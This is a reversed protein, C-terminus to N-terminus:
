LSGIWEAGIKGVMKGLDGGGKGGIVGGVFAGFATGGGVEAATGIAGGVAAGAYSGAWSGVGTLGGVTIARGWHQLDNLSPDDADAEWQAWGETVGALIPGGWKLWPELANMWGTPAVFPGAYLTRPPLDSTPWRLFKSVWSVTRLGFRLLWVAVGIAGLTPPMWFGFTVGVEAVPGDSRLARLDAVLKNHAETEKARLDDVATKASSYAAGQGSDGPAPDGIVEGAVALGAAQASHRVQVLGSNVVYLSHGFETVCAAVASIKVEANDLSMAVEVLGGDVADATEGEWLGALSTKSRIVADAAGEVRRGRDTLDAAAALCVMSSGHREVDIM